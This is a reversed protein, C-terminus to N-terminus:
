VTVAVSVAVWDMAPVELEITTAAVVARAIVEPVGGFPV